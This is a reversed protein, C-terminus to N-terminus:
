YLLLIHAIVMIRMVKFFGIHLALKCLVYAGIIRGIVTVWVWDMLFPRSTKLSTYGHLSKLLTPTVLISGIYSFFQLGSVMLILIIGLNKKFISSM